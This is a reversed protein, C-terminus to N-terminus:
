LLPPSRTLDRGGDEIDITELPLPVHDSTPEEEDIVVPNSSTGEAGMTSCAEEHRYKHRLLGARVLLRAKLEARLRNRKSLESEIQRLDESVLISYEALQRAADLPMRVGCKSPFYMDDSARRWYVRIDLYAKGKFHSVRARIDLGGSLQLSYCYNDMKGAACERCEEEMRRLIDPMASELQHWQDQGLAIMTMDNHDYIKRFLVVARDNDDCAEVFVNRYELDYAQMLPKLEVGAEKMAM